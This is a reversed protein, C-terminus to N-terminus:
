LEAPQRDHLFSAGTAVVVRVGEGVPQGAAADFPANTVALGVLEAELGDLVADVDVVQVGGDQVEEAQVVRPEGEAVAAAVEPQGVDGSVDDLVDQSSKGAM